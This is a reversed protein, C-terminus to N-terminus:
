SIASKWGVLSGRSLCTLFDIIQLWVVCGTSCLEVKLVELSHSRNMHQPLLGESLHVLVISRTISQM